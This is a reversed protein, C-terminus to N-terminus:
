YRNIRILECDFLATIENRLGFRLRGAKAQFPAAVSHALPPKEHLAYFAAAFSIFDAAAGSGGEVKHM